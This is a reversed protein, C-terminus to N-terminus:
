RSVDVKAKPHTKCADLYNEVFRVLLDYNGWGNDPNYVKYKDPDARLEALGKELPEILQEATDIGIEEPRWLPMYIGAVGAMTNLNHTINADYVCSNGGVKALVPQVGPHRRNWEDLSIEVTQGGERIFITWREPGADGSKLYVDLSM